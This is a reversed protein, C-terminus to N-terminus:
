LANCIQLVKAMKDEVLSDECKKITSFFTDSCFLKLVSCEACIYKRLNIIKLDQIKGLLIKKKTQYLPSGNLDSQLHLFDSEYGCGYLLKIVKLPMIRLVKDWIINRQIQM